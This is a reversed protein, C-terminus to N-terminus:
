QQQCLVAILRPLSGCSCPISEAPMFMVHSLFCFGLETGQESYDKRMLGRLGKEDSVFQANSTYQLADDVHGAHSLAYLLYGTTNSHNISPTLCQAFLLKDQWAALCPLLLCLERGEGLCCHMSM